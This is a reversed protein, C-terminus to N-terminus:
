EMEKAGIFIYGEECQAPDFFVYDGEKVDSKSSDIKLYEDNVWEGYVSAEVAKYNGNELKDARYFMYFNDNVNTSASGKVSLVNEEVVYSINVTVNMGIKFNSNNELTIVTRYGDKNNEVDKNKISSVQTIVGKTSIDSNGAQFVDVTMGKEINFIEVDSVYIVVSYKSEDLITAVPLAGAEYSLGETVNLSNVVGDSPAYITYDELQKKLEDLKKTNEDDSSKKLEKLNYEADQIAEDEEVVTMDYQNQAKSIQNELDPLLNKYNTYTEKYLEVLDTKMTSNEQLQVDYSLTETTKESKEKKAVEENYLNLYKKYNNNTEEYDSKLDDIDKKLQKLTIDRNKKLKELNKEAKSIELNTLNKNNKITTELNAIEKDIEKTSIKCILDGKKVTQGNKVAVKDVLGSASTYLNKSNESSINGNYSMTNKIDRYDVTYVGMDFPNVYEEESSCATFAGMILISSLVVSIKKLLFLNKM